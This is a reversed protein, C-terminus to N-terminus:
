NWDVDSSNPQPLARWNWGDTRDWALVAQGFGSCIWVHTAAFGEPPEYNPLSGRQTLLRDVLHTPGYLDVGIALHREEVDDHDRLKDLKRRLQESSMMRDLDSDVADTATSVFGGTAPMQIQIIGPGSAASVRLSNDGSVFWEVDHDRGTWPVRSPQDVNHRDCAAVVAPLRRRLVDLRANLTVTVSWGRPSACPITKEGNGLKTWWEVARGDQITTVEVAGRVNGSDFVYDVARQRGDIDFPVLSVGHLLQVVQSMFQETRRENPVM